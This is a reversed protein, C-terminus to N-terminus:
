ILKDEDDYLDFEPYLKKACEPCIGHSFQANSREGIYKEIQNWYGQDDRIKKCNSCIPVLGSLTKIESLATRLKDREQRLAEQAKKRETTDVFVSILCAKGGLEMKEASWFGYLPDGNKKRFKVEEEHFGGYKQALEVYKSREEPTFWLGIQISTRGLVENREFGTVKTFADNVDLFRGDNLATFAIYVPSAHFLKSFKRESEGLADEVRKRETIDRAIGQIAFPKGDRYIIAGMSEVYVHEGDKRRLKYEAVDKQSGTKLIEEVTEAALPLQDKDLLSVFNLSKIDDKSYGLSELAADNADIFNGEFDCLYVLELSREFLARYREESERLADEARKRTTINECIGMFYLKGKSEFRVASSFYPIKRGDKTVLVDEASGYGAEMVTKIATIILENNEPTHFDMVYRDKLEDATYGLDTEHRKNWSILKCEPYSYLFFINPLSDIISKSFLQEQQLAAEAHQLEENQAQLEEVSSRLEKNLAEYEENKDQLAEEAHKRESEAQELEKTRQELEAYTPKTAM